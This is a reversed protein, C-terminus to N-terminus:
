VNEQKKLEPRHGPRAKPVFQHRENQPNGSIEKLKGFAEEVKKEIESFQIKRPDAKVTVVVDYGAPLTGYLKSAAERFQRKLKNRLVAKQEVKKSVVIGLRSISMRNPLFNIAATGVSFFSGRSYVRKFDRSSRIRKEKPLV